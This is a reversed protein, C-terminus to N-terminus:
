FHDKNLKTKQKLNKLKSCLQFRRGGRALFAKKARPLNALEAQSITEELSSESSPSVWAVVLENVMIQNPCPPYQVDLHSGVEM